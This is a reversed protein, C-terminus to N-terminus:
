QMITASSVSLITILETLARQADEILATNEETRLLSVVYSQQGVKTITDATFM